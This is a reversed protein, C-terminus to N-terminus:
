ACLFAGFLKPKSQNHFSQIGCGKRLILFIDGGKCGLGGKKANSPKREEDNLNEVRRGGVFL